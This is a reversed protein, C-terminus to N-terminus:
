EFRAKGMNTYSKLYAIFVPVPSNVGTTDHPRLTNLSLQLRAHLVSAHHLGHTIARMGM